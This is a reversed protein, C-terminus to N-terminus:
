TRMGGRVAGAATEGYSAAFRPDLPRSIPTALWIRLLHRKRAPDDFDKFESRRHLLVLNNMLVIDGPQQRFRVHLADDEALWLQDPGLDLLVWARKDPLGDSTQEEM